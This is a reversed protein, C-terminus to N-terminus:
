LELAKQPSWGYVYYRQAVTSRKLGLFEAWATLCMTLGYFTFNKNNSRNNQQEKMTSWRCNNKSYGKDNDIRDLTLGYSWGGDMDEVFNEFTNWRKCVKVGRGGYVHFYKNNKNNCRTLMNKYISGLRHKYVPIEAM